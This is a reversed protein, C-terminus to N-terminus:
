NKRPSIALNFCTECLLGATKPEGTLQWFDNSPTCLETRGCARCLCLRNRRDPVGNTVVDPNMRHGGVVKDAKMKDIMEDTALAIPMFVMPILDPPVQNSTLVKGEIVDAALKRLEEDDHYRM